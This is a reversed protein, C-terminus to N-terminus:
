QVIKYCCACWHSRGNQRWCFRSFLPNRPTSGTSLGKWYSGFVKKGIVKKPFPFGVQYDANLVLAPRENLEKIYKAHDMAADTTGVVGRSQRKEHLIGGRGFRYNEAVHDHLEEDSLSRGPGPARIPRPHKGEGGNGGDDDSSRSGSGNGSNKKRRNRKRNSSTRAKPISSFLCTTRASSSTSTVVATNVEM